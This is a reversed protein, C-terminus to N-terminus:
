KKEWPAEIKIERGPIKDFFDGERFVVNGGVVTILPCGTVSMGAFPTWGSRTFVDRDDFVRTRNLDILVVDADYGAQIRGKGSIGFLEAPNHSMWRVLQEISINKRHVQDLMLPLSTEVGPMGCPAAGFQQKKEEATHPAHDTAICDVIGQKLGDLLALNDARERIPPNVLAFTGLKEYVDPSHLFLHHPCAEASIFPEKEDRLFDVEEKTSLHLIHLRRNYKKALLVALQVAKLAAEPSRIRSHDAADDSHTYNARNKRITREDEAHVAILRNGTAFFREIDRADEVLLNGTSSGMYLKIGCVGEVSNVVDLNSPTAGIYFGYNVLSAWSAIERKEALAEASTTAPSNNPMDLFTTVGGSAAARSGSFLDEKIEMGPQRFHVHPDIVGPIMTLGTADITKEAVAGSCSGIEAIRGDSLFVNTVGTKDPCVVKANKILISM